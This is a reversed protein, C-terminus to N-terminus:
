KADGLPPPAVGLPGLLFGAVRAWLRERVRPDAIQHTVRPLPLLEFPRGARFLAEALKLSHFFYVNDDATGHVLLLPRALDAAYSLPSSARYGEPNAGPLGLYRETYHTDYDRWDIVPAGAVAVKFLDPRRLVALAAMTGGFSWGYIGVRELDLQPIRRALAELGAVQDDLPMDAFSGAIAREWDRGRRPTGRNDICVVVCGHDAIWQDLLYHREDAKVMLSHPGGYVHVVVPYRRGAEFGRPRIVAAHFTRAEGVQLLELQVRFPPAEASAPVIARRGGDAGCVLCEPFADAAVRTDVFVTGDRSFVPAHEALDTTLAARAGTALDLREIRNSVADGCLVHATRSDPGLHVLALFGHGGPIPEGALAGDPRRLELARHGSRESAWLLGSGDPLWRPLDRDLNVWAEDREIILPRTEGTAADVALLVVERQDRTQVLISLPAAATDWLVRALYPYREGDWSVWTTAGAAEGVALLGLRVRANAKGPRPYPFVAPPREPRAPDAIAFREVERQDVEAYALLRSDPSWWFGEHRGMEEQAVFEALGHLLDDSGGQTLARPAAAGGQGDLEVVHLDAGWVFAVKRGDPSFRPDLLARDSAGTLARAAGSQRAVLFLRGSFVLLLSAGDPSLAFWTFGQDTIRQRERRALEAESVVEAADGMQTPVSAAEGRGPPSSQPEEPAAPRSDRRPLTQSGESPEWSLLAAPTVVIRTQGSAVDLEFLGHEPSRAPSRLFLVARGDPTPQVRTPRGLLYGRTEAFARLFGPHPGSGM